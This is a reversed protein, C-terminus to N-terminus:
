MRARLEDAILKAAINQWNHLTREPVSSQFWELALRSCEDLTDKDMRRTYPKLGLVYPFYLSNFYRWEDTTGFEEKGQPKLRQISQTLLAKLAHVRDLPNDPNTSLVAPLNMLPSTSLKPLDGLNSMARRTLRTFEEETMSAPDLTSLRPLADATQRLIERQDNVASERSLTLRDLIAQISDSFTQTLIGFAIVCVLAILKGFTVQGDIAIALIVFVALAGAYYLSSVLSRLMHSRISEGEDFADWVTISIGLLVLDLGLAPIMWSRPIWNLPLVLLGTSLSFFLGIVVLLAFSPKAQSQPKFKIILVVSAFLALVAILSFWTNLLTLIFIPIATLMWIRILSQRWSTEEPVLYLAAGIWFLAPILLLDNSQQGWIIELALAVAYFLVGWGTLRVTMKQSNRALLYAGLWLTFGFFFLNVILSFTIPM